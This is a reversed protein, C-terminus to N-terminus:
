VAPVGNSGPCPSLSEIVDDASCQSFCKSVAGMNDTIHM